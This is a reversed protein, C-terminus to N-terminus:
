AGFFRDIACRLADLAVSTFDAQASPSTFAIVTLYEDGNEDTEWIQIEGTEPNVKPVARSGILIRQEMVIM